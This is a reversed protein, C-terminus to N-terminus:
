YKEAVITLNAARLKRPVLCCKLALSNMQARFDWSNVGGTKREALDGIIKSLYM